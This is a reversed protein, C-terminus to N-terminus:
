KCGNPINEHTNTSRTVLVDIAAWYSAPAGPSMVRSVYLVYLVYHGPALVLRFRGGARVHARTRPGAPIVQTFEGPGIAKTTLSGRVAAVVGAVFPPETGGSALSGVCPEIGGTVVGSSTPIIGGVHTVHSRPGGSQVLHGSDGRFSIVVGSIAGMGIIVALGILWRRRRRHRAEGFLVRIDERSPPNSPPASVITM